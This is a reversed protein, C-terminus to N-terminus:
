DNIKIDKIKLQLTTKGNWTNNDISYAVDIKSGVRLSDFMDGMRFAIADLIESDGHQLKLKLHSKDKGLLKLDKIEVDFSAFTPEPNGIGFPGLTQISNYLEITISSLNLESDIKLSRKLMDETVIKDASEELIKQLEPIKDTKISFGAAMPHGGVNIFHDTHLRLFEIMNFGNISRASAKSMKEGISVVIAPRYFEEVLKGAVLGIVGQQYTEHSIVLLNKQGSKNTSIGTIAHETVEKLVLQRERNISELKEALIKARAPNQTCLLRLSEMASEIRGAANLRPAIIFGIEYVGFIDKECGAQKYLERLGPRKSNCLNKIGHKVITRNAGNLPVMDAVTGLAALELHTDQIQYKTNQIQYEKLIEKTLLYAVGAGCLQTTHVISHAKPPNDSVVHHDTIIVDIGQERAYNIADTAVIGNDVTIILSADKIKSDPNKINDIGLISLGYGEDIRHPIYPMVRANLGHLTEWLIAAGTIGDVDYDGFVVIQEQKKIALKIRKIAKALHKVDIGVSKITVEELKPNLFNERETKTNIGRNALLLDILHDTKANKTNNLINWNRM